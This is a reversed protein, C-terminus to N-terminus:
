KTLVKRVQTRLDEQEVRSLVLSVGSDLSLGVLGNFISPYVQNFCSKRVEKSTVYRLSAPVKVPKIIALKRKEEQEKRTPTPEHKDRSPKKKRVRKKQVDRYWGKSSGRNYKKEGKQVPSHAFKAIRKGLIESFCARKAINIAANVDRDATYGCEECSVIRDLTDYHFQKGGEQLIKKHMNGCSSCSQSTKWANVWLSLGGVNELATQLQRFFEGCNWRGNQMTNGVWSLNERAVPANGYKMSVNKMELAAHQAMFKRKRSLALRQDEIDKYLAEIKKYVWEPYYGFCNLNDESKYEEIKLWCDKIQEETKKISGWLEQDLYSSLVGTEVVTNEHKDYVAYTVYNCIGVDIGIVYRDSLQYEKKEKKATLIISFENTETSWVLTPQIIKIADRLHEPIFVELVIWEDGCIIDYSITTSTREKVKCYQNSPQSLTLVKGPTSPNPRVTRAWGASMRTKEGGFLQQSIISEWTKKRTETGRACTIVSARIMDDVRSYGKLDTFRTDERVNGNKSGDVNRSDVQLPRGVGHPQGKKMKGNENYLFPTIEELRYRLITKAFDQVTLAINEWNQLCTDLDLENDDQDRVSIIETHSARNLFSNDSM